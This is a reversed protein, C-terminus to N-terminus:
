SVVVNRQEIAYDSVNSHTVFSKMLYDREHRALAETIFLGHLLRTHDDKIFWLIYVTIM